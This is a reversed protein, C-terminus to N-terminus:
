RPVKVEVSARSSSGASDIITLTITYIRGERSRASREARLRVHHADIVEWDPETDGDGTGNVPQNSSITITPVLGADCNDSVSYDLTVLVMNHDPPWLVPKDVTLGSIM